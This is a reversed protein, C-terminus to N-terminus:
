AVVFRVGGQYHRSGKRVWLVRAKRGTIDPLDHKTVMINQGERCSTQTLFGFGNKSINVTVGDCIDESNEDLVFRFNAVVEHRVERRAPKAAERGTQSGIVDRLVNGLQRIDYPKPLSARFGYAKSDIMIKDSTFGSCAVVRAGPDYQLLRKLTEEGGIGEPQYIDLIVAKFTRGQEKRTMYLEVAEEGRTVSEVTYGLYALMEITIKRTMADDEMLLIASDGPAVINEEPELFM